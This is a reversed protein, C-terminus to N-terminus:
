RLSDDHVARRRSATAARAAASAGPRVSTRAHAACGIPKRLRDAGAPDAADLWLARGSHLDFAQVDEIREGTCILVMDGVVLPHYSLLAEREEGPRTVEDIWQAEATQRPLDVVWIPRM